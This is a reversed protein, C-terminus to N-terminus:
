GKERVIFGEDTNEVPPANGEAQEVMGYVDGKLWGFILDVALKRAALQISLTEPKDDDLNHINQLDLIRADLKPKIVGWGKSGLLNRVEEGDTLQKQTEADLTDAM